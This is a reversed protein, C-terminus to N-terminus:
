NQPRKAQQQPTTVQNEPRALVEIERDRGSQVRFTEQYTKGDHRAVAVYEGESLVVSPFAGISEKISDGGPTLVSWQTNAIAEGGRTNVLKLTIQAARHHVTADTLRGPEIRVDAQIVANGEGFTSQLYYTGAPLIVLDGPSANRVVPPREARGGTLPKGGRALFSGEYVDFKLRHTQILNEGVRGQVRLGGGPVILTEKRPESLLSIRTTAGAMGYSAHVIYEGPPLAFVPYADNSEQVMTLSASSEGRATFVRWHLSRPIYPGDASYRASLALPLRGQAVSPVNPHPDRMVPAAVAPQTQQHVTGSSPRQERVPPAPSVSPAPGFTTAPGTFPAFQASAQTALCSLLPLALCALLPLRIGACIVGIVHM